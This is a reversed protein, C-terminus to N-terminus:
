AARAMAEKAKVELFAQTVTGDITLYGNAGFTFMEQPYGLAALRQLLQTRLYDAKAKPNAKRLALEKKHNPDAFIKAMEVLAAAFLLEGFDEVLRHPKADGWNLLIGNFMGEMQENM